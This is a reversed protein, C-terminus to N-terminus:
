TSSKAPEYVLCRLSQDPYRLEATYSSGDKLAVKIAVVGLKDYIAKQLYTIKEIERKEGAKDTVISQAIEVWSSDRKISRYLEPTIPTRKYASNFITTDIVAGSLSDIFVDYMMYDKGNARLAEVKYPQFHVLWMGKQGPGFKNYAASVELKSADFDFLSAISKLAKDIAEQKSIDKQDPQPREIRQALAFNVRATWDIYQLLEENSLSQKPFVLIDKNLDLYFRAEGAKLPLKNEPRLGDYIYQQKLEKLRKEEQVSMKRTGEASERKSSDMYKYIQEMEEATMAQKLYEEVTSVPAKDKVYLIPVIDSASNSPPLKQQMKQTSASIHPVAFASAGLMGGSIAFVALLAPLSKRKM